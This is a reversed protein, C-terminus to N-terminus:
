RGFIYSGRGDGRQEIMYLAVRVNETGHDGRVRSPLGHLGIADKFLSLVTDSWNNTSCRM